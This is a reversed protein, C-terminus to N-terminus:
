SGASCYRKADSITMVQALPSAPVNISSSSFFTKDDGIMSSAVESGPKGMASLLGDRSM